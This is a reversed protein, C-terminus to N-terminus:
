PQEENNRIDAVTRDAQRVLHLYSMHREYQDIVDGVLQERTYGNVSDGQTGEALHVETRYYTEGAAQARAFTPARSPNPTLRYIFAPEDGLNTALQVGPLSGNSAPVETVETALEHSSLEAAVEHLAPAAVEEVFRSTSERDPYTLSRRLRQGM